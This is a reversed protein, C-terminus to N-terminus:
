KRAGGTGRTARSDPPVAEAPPTRIQTDDGKHDFDDSGSPIPQSFLSPIIPRTILNWREEKTGYVPFPLVPQFLLRGGPKADGENVDGDSFYFDFETFLAWADSIPNSLKAGIKAADDARAASGALAISVFLAALV